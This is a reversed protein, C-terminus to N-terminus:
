YAEAWTMHLNYASELMEVEMIAADLKRFAEALAAYDNADVKRVAKSFYAVNARAQAITVNFADIGFDAPGIGGFAECTPAIIGAATLANRVKRAIM